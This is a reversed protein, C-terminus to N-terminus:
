NSPRSSDARIDETSLTTTNYEGSATGKRDKWSMNNGEATMSDALIDAAVRNGAVVSIDETKSNALTDAEKSGAGSTDVTTNDVSIGALKSDAAAASINDVQESDTTTSRAESSYPCDPHRINGAAASSDAEMSDGTSTDTGAM